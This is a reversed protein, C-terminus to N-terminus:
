RRRDGARDAAQRRDPRSEHSDPPVLFRKDDDITRDVDDTTRDERDVDDITREDIRSRGTLTTQRGTRV